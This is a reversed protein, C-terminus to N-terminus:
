ISCKGGECAGVDSHSTSDSEEIMKTYDVYRYHTVLYNFFNKDEETVVAERPANRYKKDINSPAFTLGSLCHRNEWIMPLLKMPDDTTITASVSNTLDTKSRDYVWNQYYFIIKRLHEIDTVQELVIANEAAEIPFCIRSDVIMHPNISKFYEAVPENDGIMVRRIYHRAHHPHIGSAVGGLELSATGSPKVCCHRKAPNIGILRAVNKNIERVLSNGHQLLEKDIWDNDYIGTLSVGLLADREALIKSESSLYHYDTYSAQVTALVSANICCQEFQKRSVIKACNIEVLNCFGFGDGPDFGIESCPNCGYEKSNSFFFGPEGYGQSLKLVRKLMEESHPDDRLLLVSNNAMYRHAHKDHNFVGDAKCYLMETDSPSFLSILSSRRSGGSVVAQAIICMMDHVEIPRLQRGQAQLLQERVSELMMKLPLHGPARGGSSKLLSGQIRIASYDFEIYQGSVFFSYLLNKLADAWGEISDKIHHHQVIKSIRQIEPLQNVHHWQVSYGVGCGSLLLWFAESFFSVRKAHAFSCNYMRANNKLIPEGAYQMSRMSPLIEQALVSEKVGSLDLNPFREEHMKFVRDVTESYVERRNLHPLYRAYKSAHIYDAIASPNPHLLNKSKNHERYKIFRRAVNHYGAVMLMNEVYEGLIESDVTDDPLKQLLDTVANAIALANGHVGCADFAVSIGKRIKNLDFTEIKGSRKHVKM